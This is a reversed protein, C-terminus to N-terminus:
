ADLRFWKVDPAVFFPTWCIRAFRRLLNRRRNPASLHMQAARKTKLTRLKM